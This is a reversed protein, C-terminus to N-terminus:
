GPLWDGIVLGEYRANGPLLARRAAPRSVLTCPYTGMRLRRIQSFGREGEARNVRGM